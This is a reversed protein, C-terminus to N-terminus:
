RGARMPGATTRPSPAEVDRPPEVSVAVEPHLDLVGGAGKGLIDFRITRAPGTPTPAGEEGSRLIGCTLLYRGGVLRNDLRARLRVHAGARGEVGLPIGVHEEGAVFVTQGRANDIRVFLLPEDVDRDIAAVAHLEIPAGGELETTRGGDASALWAEIVRTAPDSLASVVQEPFSSQSGARASLARMNLELYRNTVQEPEGLAEIRGDHLLMARECYTLVASMSHTVLVMTRGAGHMARFVEGCKEQFEADGVALVEDILLIDADVHTMISFGLRVKMGSSYNRLKLDRYEELGAFDIIEDYRARAEPPRLGMMVGNVVVNDFATLEPNFGVGLELFPALRGRLRISGRDPRYISALLKLLTSKGSGNRGVIAFFEGEGVDFSVDRLVSLRRGRSGGLRSRRSREGNSRRGEPIHFTKDLDRVEIAVARPM